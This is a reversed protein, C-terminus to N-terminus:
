CVFASHTVWSGDHRGDTRYGLLGFIFSLCAHWVSLLSTDYRPAVSVGVVGKSRWLTGSLCLM